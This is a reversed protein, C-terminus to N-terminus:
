DDDSGVPRPNNIFRWTDKDAWGHAESRDIRALVFILQPFKAHIKDTLSKARADSAIFIAGVSARWNKVEPLTDLFDLIQQREQRREVNGHRYVLVYCNM